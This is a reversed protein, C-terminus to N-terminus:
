RIKENAIELLVDAHCAEPACWCVLDKGRLEGIESLLEQGRGNLYSRFKEVVEIRTGDRGIIFPNGWKTPRGVYTADAPYVGRKNYVKPLSNQQLM